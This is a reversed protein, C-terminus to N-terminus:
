ISVGHSKEKKDSGKDLDPCADRIKEIDVVGLEALRSVLKYLVAMYGDCSKILHQSVKDECEQVKVPRQQHYSM